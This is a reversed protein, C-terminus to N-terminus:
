NTLAWFGLLLEKKKHGKITKQSDNLKMQTYYKGFLNYTVEV